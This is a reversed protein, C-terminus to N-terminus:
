INLKLRQEKILKFNKEKEEKSVKYWSSWILREIMDLFYGPTRKEKTKEDTWQNKTAPRINIGKGGGINLPKKGGYGCCLDWINLMWFSEIIYSGSKTETYEFVLYKVKLINESVGGEKSLKSIYGTIKGIDFGPGHKSSFVKLEWPWENNWFDPPESSNSGAKWKPLLGSLRANLIDEFCNGVINNNKISGNSSEGNPLSVTYNFKIEAGIFAKCSEYIKPTDPDGAWAEGKSNKIISLAKNYDFGYKESLM